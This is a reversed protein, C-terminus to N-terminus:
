RGAKQDTRCKACPSIQGSWGRSRLVEAVDRAVRCPHDVVDSWGFRLVVFGSRVLRLDRRRDSEVRDRHYAYGDLEIVVGFELYAVDVRIGTCVQAQRIGAPLGHGEEALKRYEDELVSEVGAAERLFRLLHGKHRQVRRTQLAELLVEPRTLGRRFATTILGIVDRRAETVSALDLLTDEVSTVRITGGWRTDDRLDVARGLRGLGDQRFRWYDTSERNRGAPLWVDYPKARRDVLGHAYAAGEGGIVAEAGFRVGVAMAVTDWTVPGPELRVIGPAVRVWLGQRLHRAIVEDSLEARLTARTVVRGTASATELLKESPEQPRKM